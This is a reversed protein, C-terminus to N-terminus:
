TDYTVRVELFTNRTNYEVADIGLSYVVRLLKITKKSETFCYMLKSKRLVALLNKLLICQVSDM